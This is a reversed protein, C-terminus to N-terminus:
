SWAPQKQRVSADVTVSVHRVGGVTACWKLIAKRCRWADGSQQGRPRSAAPDAAVDLADLVM